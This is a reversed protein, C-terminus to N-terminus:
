QQAVCDCCQQEIGAMQEVADGQHIGILVGASFLRIHDEREGVFGVGQYCLGLERLPDILGGVAKPDGEKVVAVPDNAAGQAIDGSIQQGEIKGPDGKHQSGQEYSQKYFLPQRDFIVTGRQDTHDACRDTQQNKATLQERDGGHSGDCSKQDQPILGCPPCVM